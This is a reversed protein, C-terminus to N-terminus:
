VLVAAFQRPAGEEFLLQDSEYSAHTVLRALQHTATDTLGELFKTARLQERIAATSM